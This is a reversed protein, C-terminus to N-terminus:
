APIAGALSGGRTAEYLGSDFLWGWGEPATDRTLGRANLVDVVFAEMVMRMAYTGVGQPETRGGLYSSVLGWAPVSHDPHLDQQRGEIFARDARRALDKWLYFADPLALLYYPVDPVSGHAFLNRATGAAWSDSTADFRSKAEVALVPGGKKDLVAVDYTDIIRM